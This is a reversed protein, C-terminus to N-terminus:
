SLAKRPHGAPSKKELLAGATWAPRHPWRQQWNLPSNWRIPRSPGLQPNRRQAQPWLRALDRLSVPEKMPLILSATEKTM